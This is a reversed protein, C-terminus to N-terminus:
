VGAPAGGRAAAAVRARSSIPGADRAAEDREDDDQHEDATAGTDTDTERAETEEHTPSTSPGESDEAAMAAAARELVSSSTSTPEGTKTKGNGTPAREGLLQQIGRVNRIVSATRAPDRKGRPGNAGREIRALERDELKLLRRAIREVADQPSAMSERARAAGEVREREEGVLECARSYSITFPGVDGLEGAAARRLAAKVSLRPGQADVVARYLEREQDETLKREFKAM